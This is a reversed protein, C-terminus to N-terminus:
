APLWPIQVIGVRKLIRLIGIAIPVAGIAKYWGSLFNTALGGAVILGIDIVWDKIQGWLWSLFDCLWRLWDPCEFRPTIAMGTQEQYYQALAKFLEVKNNAYYDPDLGLEELKPAVEEPKPYGWEELVEYWTVM